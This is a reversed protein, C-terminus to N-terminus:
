PADARDVTHGSAHPRYRAHQSSAVTKLHKVQLDKVLHITYGARLLRSGLEIDEISPDAYSEDFGGMEHFAQRRVAGCGAWFTSAKEQGNQHVFHHLLNRYQSLFGPEGPTDDYSGMVATLERHETFLEAVRAALDSLPRSTPISFSCSTEAPRRAGHNRARAPGGREELVVVRAGIEAAREALNIMLVM